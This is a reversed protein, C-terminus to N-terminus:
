VRELGPVKVNGDKGVDVPSSWLTDPEDSKRWRVQFKTAATKTM